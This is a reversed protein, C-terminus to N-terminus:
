SVFLYLRERSPFLALNAPWPELAGSRAGCTCRLSEELREVSAFRIHRHLDSSVRLRTVAGCGPSLCRAVLTGPAPLLRGLIQVPASQTRGHEM